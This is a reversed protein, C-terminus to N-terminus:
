KRLQWMKYPWRMIKMLMMVLRGHYKQFYYNQAQYYHRRRDNNKKLSQGGFHILSLRPDVIVKQGTRAVRRCLDVDEFYLFFKEDWGGIKEFLERRIFLACGSVWDSIFPQNVKQEEKKVFRNKFILGGLTPFKGYAGNQATGDPLLLRPSIVGSNENELFLNAVPSLIDATLLTDSNLFLLYRGRALRAGQNNATAFGLNQTNKILKIKEGFEKTLFEASGDASNNDIAIIEWTIGDANPCYSFISRLCAATMEPTRYNIIIISFTM